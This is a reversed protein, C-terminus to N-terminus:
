AAYLLSRSKNLGTLFYPNRISAPTLLDVRRGLLREASELFAFYARKLPIPDLAEFEALLDVDSTEADFEGTAASGFVDLRKVHHKRCLAILAERHQEILPAM